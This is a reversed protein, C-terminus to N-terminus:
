IASVSIRCVFDDHPPISESSIQSIDGRPVYGFNVAILM